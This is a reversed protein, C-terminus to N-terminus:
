RIMRNNPKVICSKYSLEIELGGGEIMCGEGGGKGRAELGERVGRGWGMETCGMMKSKYSKIKLM